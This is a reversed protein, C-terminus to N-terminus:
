CNVEGEKVLIDSRLHTIEEVEGSLQVSGPWGYRAQVGRYDM